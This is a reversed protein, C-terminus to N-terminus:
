EHRLAAGPELRYIRRAPLYCALATVFTTITIVILITMLDFPKVGFLLKELVRSWIATAVIGLGIGIAVLGFGRWLIERMIQLRTAGLAMRLGIEHATRSVRYAILGYLGIWTLSLALAGFLGTLLVAVRHAGLGYDVFTEMSEISLASVAPDLSELESRVVVAIDELPLRSRLSLTMSRFPEPAQRHLQYIEPQVKQDLRHQKVDGVVGVIQTWGSALKRPEIRVRRGSVGGDSLFKHAFTRNIVAVSPSVRSDSVEFGRGEVVSIGLTRFYGETVQRYEVQRIGSEPVDRSEVLVERALPWFALPALNSASASEVGHAAHIRGILRDYFGIVRHPESYRENPLTVDVTVIDQPEFGPDVQLLRIFSNLLLGASTLLVLTLAVQLVVLARRARRRGPGEGFVRRGGEKLSERLDASSLKWASSTGFVVSVVAAVAITLVLMPFSVEVRAEVPIYGDPVLRLIIELGAHALLYGVAGGSVALLANETLLQRLIRARGAGLAVRMAVERGRAISRVMLLGAVNVCAILLILGAVAMLVTLALRVDALVEDILRVAFLRRSSAGISVPIGRLEANVEEM